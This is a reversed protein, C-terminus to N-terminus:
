FKVCIPQETDGLLSLRPKSLYWCPRYPPQWPDWHYRAYSGCWKDKLSALWYRTSSYLQRAFKFREASTTVLASTHHWIMHELHFCQESALGSPSPNCINHGRSLTHIDDKTPRMSSNQLASVGLQQSLLPRTSFPCVCRASPLKQHSQFSAQKYIFWPWTSFSASIHLHATTLRM